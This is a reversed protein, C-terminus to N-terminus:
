HKDTNMQPQEKEAVNELALEGSYEGAVADFLEKKVLFGGDQASVLAAGSLLVLLLLPCFRM